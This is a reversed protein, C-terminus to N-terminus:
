RDTAKIETKPPYGTVDGTRYSEIQKFFTEDDTKQGMLYLDQMDMEALIEEMWIGNEYRIKKWENYGAGGSSIYVGNTQLSEFGRYMIYFGYFNGNEHHLILFDRVPTLEMILEQTGDEDLDCLSVEIVKVEAEDTEYTESFKELDTIGGPIYRYSAAREEGNEKVTGDSNLATQSGFDTWEFPVGERLVPFYIQLSEWEEETMRKEFSDYDIESFSVPEYEAAKLPIKIEFEEYPITVEQFGAAFCALAYPPFYFCVGEEQLYFDSELTVGNEVVDMADEWFADANEALYATFYETVIDKVEEEDNGIVDKLELRKGTQLDFTYGERYLQGHAGGSYDDDEQYFSLYRSDFYYVPSLLSEYAYHPNYEFDAYEKLIEELEEANQKEYSIIAEQKEQLIRNIEAAGPFRDDVVLRELDVSTLWDDPNDKSYYKEHCSVASGVESIRSDYFAEGITEEESPNDLNRRMVYLKYDKEGVYYIYNGHMGMVRDAGSYIPVGSSVGMFEDQSFLISQKGDELAVKYCVYYPERGENFDSRMLYIYEEDMGIIWGDYETHFRRELTELIETEDANQPTGDLFHLDRVSEEMDEMHTYGTGDTNIASLTEKTTGLSWWEELFYIKDGLLLAKADPMFKDTCDSKWLVDTSKSEKDMKMMECGTYIYLFNQDELIMGSSAEGELPPNEVEKEENEPQRVTEQNRNQCGTLNMVFVAALIVLSLNKISKKYDM